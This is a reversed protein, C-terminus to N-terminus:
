KFSFVQEMRPLGVSELVSGMIKEWGKPLRPLQGVLSPEVVEVTHDPKFHLLEGQLEGVVGTRSFARMLRQKESQPIPYREVRLDIVSVHKGGLQIDADIHPMERVRKPLKEDRPTHKEWRAAMTPDVAWMFKRQQQSKM